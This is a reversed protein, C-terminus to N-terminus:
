YFAIYPSFRGQWPYGSGQKPQGPATQALCSCSTGFGSFMCLAVSFQLADDLMTSSQTSSPTSTQTARQWLTATLMLRAPHVLVIPAIPAASVLSQNSELGRMTSFQHFNYNRIRCRKEGCRQTPNKNKTRCGTRRRRRGSGDGGGTVCLKHECM